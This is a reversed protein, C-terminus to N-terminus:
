FLLSILTYKILIFSGYKLNALLDFNLPLTTLLNGNLRLVQINQINKAKCFEDSIKEIKNNELDISKIKPLNKLPEADIQWISNDKLEINELNQLQSLEEPIEDLKKNRDTQNYFLSKLNTLSKLQNPFLEFYNGSVDLYEM